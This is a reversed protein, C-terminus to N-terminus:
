RLPFEQPFNCCYSRYRVLTLSNLIGWTLDLLPAWRSLFSGHLPVVFIRLLYYVFSIYLVVAAVPFAIDAVFADADATTTAILCAVTSLRVNATSTDFVALGEAFVFLLVIAALVAATITLDLAAVPM